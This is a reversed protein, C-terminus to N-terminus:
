IKATKIGGNLFDIVAPNHLWVSCLGTSLLRVVDEDDMKERDMLGSLFMLAHLIEHLLTDAQADLPRNTNIRIIQKCYECEGFVEGMIEVERGEAWEIRYLTNLILVRDPRMPQHYPRSM